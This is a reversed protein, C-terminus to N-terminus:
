EVLSPFWNYGSFRGTIVVLAWVVVGVGGAIRAARPPVVAADWDILRREVGVHFLAANAMAVAMALLKLRFFVQGWYYVPRALFVIVGTVLMFLGAVAIFPVLRRWIESVRVRTFMVGLLRLDWVLLLGLFVAIGVTHLSEVIPFTWISGAVVTGLTTTELWRCFELVM